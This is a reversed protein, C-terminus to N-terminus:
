HRPFVTVPAVAAWGPPPLVCFWLLVESGLGQPSWKGSSSFSSYSCLNLNMHTHRYRAFVKATRRTQARADTKNPVVQAQNTRWLGQPAPNPKLNSELCHTMSLGSLPTQLLSVSFAVSSFSHCSTINIPPWPTGTVHWLVRTRSNEQRAGTHGPFGSLNLNVSRSVCSFLLFCLSLHELLLNLHYM